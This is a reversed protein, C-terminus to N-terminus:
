ELISSAVASANFDRTEKIEGSDMSSSSSDTARVSSVCVNSKACIFSAMWDTFLSMLDLSSFAFFSRSLISFAPRDQLPTPQHDNEDSYCMIYISQLLCIKAAFLKSFFALAFSFHSCIDQVGGFTTKEEPFSSKFDITVDDDDDSVRARACM